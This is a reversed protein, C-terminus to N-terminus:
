FTHYTHVYMIIFKIWFLDNHSIIFALLQAWNKHSFNSNATIRLIDTCLYRICVNHIYMNYIIINTYQIHIHVYMVWSLGIPGTYIQAICYTSHIMGTHVNHIIYVTHIINLTYVYMIHIFTVVIIICVTCYYMIKIGPKYTNKFHYLVNLIDRVELV